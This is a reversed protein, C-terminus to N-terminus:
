SYWWAIAGNITPTTEALFLAEGRAMYIGYSTNDQSVANNRNMLELSVTQAMENTYQTPIQLTVVGTQGNVSTVPFSVPVNGNEDPHVNNVTKVKGANAVKTDVESKNYTYGDIGGARAVAGSSDYVSSVMDGTGSGSEGRCYGADYSVGNSMSVILHYEENISFGAIQVAQSSFGSDSFGGQETDWVFWNGNEGIYPPHMSAQEARDAAATAREAAEKAEQVDAATEVYKKLTQGQMKQTEGNQCVVLLGNDYLETTEQLDVISKDAM